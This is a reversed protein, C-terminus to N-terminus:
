FFSLFTSIEQPVDKTKLLLKLDNKQEAISHTFSTTKEMDDLKCAHNIILNGTRDMFIVSRRMRTSDMDAIM